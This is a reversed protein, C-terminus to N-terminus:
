VDKPRYLSLDNPGGGWFFHRFQPPTCFFNKPAIGGLGSKIAVGRSEVSSHFLVVGRHIMGRSMQKLTLPTDKLDKQQCNEQNIKIKLLM